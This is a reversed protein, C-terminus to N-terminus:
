IYYIPPPRVRQASDVGNWLTYHSADSASHTQTYTCAHRHTAHPCLACFRRYYHSICFRPFKSRDRKAGNYSRISRDADRTHTHIHTQRVVVYGRVCECWLNVTKTNCVTKWLCVCVCVWVSILTRLTKCNPRLADRARNNTEIGNGNRAAIISKIVHFIDFINWNM